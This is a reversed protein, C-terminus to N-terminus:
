KRTHFIVNECSERCNKSFRLVHLSEAQLLLKLLLLRLLDLGSTWEDKCCQELQSLNITIQKHVSRKIIKKKKQINLYFKASRIQAAMSRRLNLTRDQCLIM